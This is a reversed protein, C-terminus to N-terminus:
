SKFLDKLNINYTNFWMKIQKNTVRKGKNIERRKKLMVFVTKWVDRHAKLITIVLKKKSYSNVLENAAGNQKLMDKLQYLYLGVTHIPNMLIMTMPFNKIVFWFHNREVLYTKFLSYKGATASYRHHVVADSVYMCEWGFIQLRLGLDTDECYCFFDEDFLGAEDLAKKRFMSACGSPILIKQTINYNSVPEARGNGRSMGSPHILLGASDMIDPDYYSVIKCACSGLRSNSELMNFLKLLWDPDANADNNLLAVYDGKSQRIAMNNGKAFGLNENSKMLKVFPYEEIIAISNDTSNNDLIILEWNTYTQKIVSDICEAIFEAGNYNVVVVSILKDM